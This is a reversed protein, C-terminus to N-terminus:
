CVQTCYRTLVVYSEQHPSPLSGHRCIIKVIFRSKAKRDGDEVSVDCREVATDKEGKPDFAKGKFVSLLAKAMDVRARFHLLM